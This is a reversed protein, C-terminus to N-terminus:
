TTSCSAARHVKHLRNYDESFPLSFVRWAGGDHNALYDQHIMMNKFPLDETTYDTYSLYNAVVQRFYSSAATPCITTVEHAHSSRASFSWSVEQTTYLLVFCSWLPVFWSCSEGGGGQDRQTPEREAKEGVGGHM